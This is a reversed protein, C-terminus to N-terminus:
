AEEFWSAALPKGTRSPLIVDVADGAALTSLAPPVFVEIVRGSGGVNCTIARSRPALPTQKNGAVTAQVTPGTAFTKLVGARAILAILGTLIAVPLVLIAGVLAVVLSPVDGRATWNNPDAPDLHLPVADGVRAAVTLGSLTGDQHYTKGNYDYTLSVPAGASVSKGVRSDNEVADVRAPVVVGSRVARSLRSWDVYQQVALYATLVLLAISTLWWARVRPDAWARRRVFPTVERPPPEIM